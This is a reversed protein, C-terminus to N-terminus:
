LRAKVIGAAIGHDRLSHYIEFPLRRHYKCYDLTISDRFYRERDENGCRGVSAIVVAFEDFTLDITIRKQEIPPPTVPPQPIHKIYSKIEM